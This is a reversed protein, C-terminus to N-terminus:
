GNKMKEKANKLIQLKLEWMKLSKEAKEYRKRLPHLKNDMVELPMKNIDNTYRHVSKRAVEIAAILKLGDTPVEFDLVGETPTEQAVIPLRGHLEYYKIKNNIEVLQKQMKLLIGVVEARQSDTHCTHFLNSTKRMERDHHGKERFLQLLVEDNTKRTRAIAISPSSEVVEKDEPLNIIAKKLYAINIPSYGKNLTPLLVNAPDIRKLRELEIQFQKLTMCAFM